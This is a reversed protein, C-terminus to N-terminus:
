YVPVGVPVNNTGPSFVVFTKTPDDGRPASIGKPRATDMNIDGMAPYMAVVGAKATFPVPTATPAPPKTPTATPDAAVAKSDVPRLIVVAAMALVLFGFVLLFKILKKSMQMRWLFKCITM